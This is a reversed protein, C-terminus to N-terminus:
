KKPPEARWSVLGSLLPLEEQWGNIKKPPKGGEPIEFRTVEAGASTDGAPIVLRTIWRGDRLKPDWGLASMQKLTVRAPATQHLVLSM